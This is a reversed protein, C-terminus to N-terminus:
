RTHSAHVKFQSQNGVLLIYWWDVDWHGFGVIGITGAGSKTPTWSRGPWWSGLGWGKTSESVSPAIRSPPRMTMSSMPTTPGHSHRHPIGGQHYMPQPTLAGHFFSRSYSATFRQVRFPRERYTAQHARAIVNKVSKLNKGFHKLKYLEGVLRAVGAEDLPKINANTEM